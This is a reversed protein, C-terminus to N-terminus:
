VPSLLCCRHRTTPAPVSVATADPSSNGHAPKNSRFTPFDFTDSRQHTGTSVVFGAPAHASNCSSSFPSHCRSSMDRV